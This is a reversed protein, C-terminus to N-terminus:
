TPQQGCRPGDRAEAVPMGDGWFCPGPRAPAFATPAAPASAEPDPDLSGGLREPPLAAEVATPSVAVTGDLLADGSSAEMTLGLAM